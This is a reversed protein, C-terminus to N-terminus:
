QANKRVGVIKERGFSGIFRALLHEIHNNLKPFFNCLFPIGVLYSICIVDGGLHTMNEKFKKHSISTPSHKQFLKQSIFSYFSEIKAFFNDQDTYQFVIMGNPKLQYYFKASIDYPNQVHGLLGLVIILDYEAKNEEFLREVSKNHVTINERLRNLRIISKNLMQLSIDNITVSSNPFNATVLECIDATIEGTGCAIDLFSVGSNKNNLFESIIGKVILRRQNFEFYQGNCRDHYVNEYSSSIQDFHSKALKEKEAYSM